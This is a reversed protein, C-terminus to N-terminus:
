DRPLIYYFLLFHLFISYVRKNQLGPLYLTNSQSGSHPLNTCFTFYIYIRAFARRSLFTSHTDRQARRLILPLFLTATRSDLCFPSHFLLISRISIKGVCHTVFQLPCPSPPTEHRIPYNIKKNICDTMDHSCCHRFNGEWAKGCAAGRSDRRTTMFIINGRTIILFGRTAKAGNVRNYVLGRQLSMENRSTCAGLGSAPNCLYHSLQGQLILSYLAQIVSIKM